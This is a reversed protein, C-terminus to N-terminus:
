LSDPCKPSRRAAVDRVDNVTEEGLVNSFTEVWQRIEEEAHALCNFCLHIRGIGFPIFGGSSSDNRKIGLAWYCRQARPLKDDCRNCSGPQLAIGGIVLMHFPIREDAFKHAVQKLGAQRLWSLAELAKKTDM